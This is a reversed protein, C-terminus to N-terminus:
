LGDSDDSTDDTTDDTDEPLMVNVSDGALYPNSNGGAVDNQPTEGSYIPTPLEEMTFDPNLFEEDSAKYINLYPFVETAINAFIHKAAGCYMQAEVKPEDVVVYIVVQPDDIPSFGIFSLLYNGQNRPHKEATGTKGGISYGEVSASGGTGAEVVGLLSKRVQESVDESITRRVLISDVNDIVNGNMDEIRKVVRPQYYYGGNIVSCFATGLEVMTVTVGQGFSSTALEVENLSNEHYVLMSMSDNDPEGPIDINTCQGFGFIRQYKDFVKPGEAEGIQMLADNCSYELAQSLTITGHTHSCQIYYIDKMEGGNCVFTDEQNFVGEQLAGAITFTKYTSGPEYVDSIAFNRWVKYLANVKEEDTANKKFDEFEEDTDFQYRIYELDYADNPNYSHSNYMALISCDKPDMVMVSVNKAGIEEMWADVKEQVIAQVNADITTVLNYGDVAPEVTQELASSDNLYSYVRGNSGNLYHNYAEEIGYTGVNGGVTYGLVHCALTDHPYLRQYEEELWVGTVKSGDETACYEKFERVKEYPEKKRAVVYYSEPNSLFTDMESDSIGFYKKLAAVTVEKQDEKELINKPELVLNYVKKSTALVTGNTDYIDGRRYPIITSTYGQQALVKQEYEKGATINIYILRGVLVVFVALIAYMAILLKKKMIGLFRRGKRKQAM